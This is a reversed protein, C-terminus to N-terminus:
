ARAEWAMVRQHSKVAEALQLLGPCGSLVEPFLGELYSGDRMGSIVVYANVDAITLVNGCFYPGGSTSLVRELQQFRVPIIEGNLAQFVGVTQESTLATAPYFDGTVPSRGLAHKYWAPVLAFQIDTIADLM